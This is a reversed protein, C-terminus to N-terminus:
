DSRLISPIILVVGFSLRQHSAVLQLVAKLGAHLDTGMRARVGPQIRERGFVCVPFDCVTACGQAPREIGHNFMKTVRVPTAIGFAGFEYPARTKLRGDCGPRTVRACSVVAVAQRPVECVSFAAPPSEQQLHRSRVVSQAM